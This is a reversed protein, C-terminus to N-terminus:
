MTQVDSRTVLVTNWMQDQLILHRPTCYCDYKLCRIKRNWTIDTVIVVVAVVENHIAQLVDYLVFAVLYKTWEGRPTKYKTQSRFLQVRRSKSIVLTAM